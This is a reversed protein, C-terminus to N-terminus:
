LKLIMMMTMPTTPWLLASIRCVCKVLETHKKSGELISQLDKAHAPDEAEIVKLMEAAEQRLTCITKHEDSTYYREEDMTLFVAACARRLTHFANDFNDVITKKKRRQGEELINASSQALVVSSLLSQLPRERDPLDGGTLWPRLVARWRTM